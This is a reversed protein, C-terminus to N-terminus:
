LPDSNTPPEARMPVPAWLLKLGLMSDAVSCQIAGTHVALISCGHEAPRDRHGHDREREVLEHVGLGAAVAGRTWKM